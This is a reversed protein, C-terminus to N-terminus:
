GVKIELTEINRYKKFIRDIKMFDMDTLLSVDDFQKSLLGNVVDFDELKLKDLIENLWRLQVVHVSKM